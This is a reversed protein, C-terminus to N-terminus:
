QREMSVKEFCIDTCQAARSVMLLFTLRSDRYPVHRQKGEAVDALTM